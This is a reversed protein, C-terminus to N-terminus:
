DLPRIAPSDESPGACRLAALVVDFEAFFLERESECASAPIYARYGRVKVWHDIVVQRPDELGNLYETVDDRKATLHLNLWELFVAQHHQSLAKRSEERGFISALGHHRYSGSIPDRLSALYVLRGFVTPIRALTNKALDSAASRELMTKARFQSM